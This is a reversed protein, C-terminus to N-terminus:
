SILLQRAERIAIYRTVSGQTAAQSSAAIDGDELPRTRKRKVEHSAGEEADEAQSTQEKLIRPFLTRSRSFFDVGSPDDDDDDVALSASKKFLSRKQTTQGTAM